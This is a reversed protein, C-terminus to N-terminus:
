FPRIIRAGPFSIEDLTEEYLQRALRIGEPKCVFLCWKSGVDSTEAIVPSTSERSNREM